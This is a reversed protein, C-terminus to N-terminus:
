FTIVNRGEKLYTTLPVGMYKVDIGLDELKASVGFLDSCKKCAELIVGADRMKQLYEQLEIDVSLLKASPGWVIFRVDEWWDKLKSNLTYMFVMKLAVERDGSSWVVVLSNERETMLEVGLIYL